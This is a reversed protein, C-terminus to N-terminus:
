RCPDFLHVLESEHMEPILSLRYMLQATRRWSRERIFVCGRLVLTGCDVQSARGSTGRLMGGGVLLIEM